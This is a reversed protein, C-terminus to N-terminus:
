LGFAELKTYARSIRSSAEPSIGSLDGFSGRLVDAMSARQTQVPLTPAAPLTSGLSALPQRYSAVGPGSAGSASLPASAGGVAGTTFAAIEGFPRPGGPTGFAPVGFPPVAFGTTGFEPVGFAAGASPYPVSAPSAQGEMAADMKREFLAMVGAVSRPGGRGTYFISRNAAAAKPLLSAAATEPSQKLATLFKAAGGGGLFHAIYLEAPEPDRGLVPILAARNDSALAGAMLAAAGPDFRMAMIAERQAPDAVRARGGRMEIAEAVSGFGLRAGHRDMTELWTNDIFQYLGAASSTSAQATPDMSSELKAQGILYDFDVGTEAAARAIAARTHQQQAAANQVPVGIQNASSM